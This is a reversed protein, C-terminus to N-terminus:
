QSPNWSPRPHRHFALWLSLLVLFIMPLVLKWLNQKVSALIDNGLLEWGSLLVGNRPLESGLSSLPVNNTGPYLLGLAFLNTSHRAVLRDFIWRSLENTPWFINTTATVRQWTDLINETLGMSNETFGSAHAADRLEQRRAGLDRAAVRNATQFELRPWLATPLNFGSLAQNSVARALVPEVEDLRRAIENENNGTVILWLPEREQTLHSEIEHLAAYAQSHRPRLANATADLKPFGSLLAAISFLILAATVVFSLKLRVPNIQEPMEPGQPTAASAPGPKRRDPFLPPLFAFIMVFASLFVGVAVLSGLQALGPLGGFNLVLFASITTVAAWFISPAIARRIEPVSLDPHALAEQYHVVAYDVALGLLIAAFGMSIVNIAGFILGGLGVTGALILALLTLLWLMPKWRRHALWFLAAIILSTGGVSTTMDHEMGGAIEAVFAPRGTYGISLGGSEREAPPLAENVTQKVTDLWRACDRYTALENGARVFIIRFTGNASAFLTQDQSFPHSANSVNEPLRTLGFPDYSLQAIDAPSMSTALQERAGALLPALNTSALHNTLQAFIEPPQNLWLAAILEAAQSPHELWPPQWTVESILDTKGRLHEALLRATSEAADANPANVTIVLERANSFNQQYIKLGQVAQSDDPLLNLVEVDFRLRSFGIVVLALLPVWLWLRSKRIM